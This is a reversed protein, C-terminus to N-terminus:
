NILHIRHTGYYYITLNGCIKTTVPSGIKKQLTRFLSAGEPDKNKIVVFDFDGLFWKKNAIWTFSKLDSTVQVIELNEKSLFMMRRAQWYLAIGRKANWSHASKDLCKASEPYYDEYLPSIKFGPMMVNIILLGCGVTLLGGLIWKKNIFKNWFDPWLLELLIPSFLLPAFFFPLLYRSEEIDILRYTSFALPFLTEALGVVLITSLIFASSEKEGPDKKLFCKVLVWGWGIYSLLLSTGIVAHQNMFNYFIQWIVQSNEWFYALAIGSGFVHPIFRYISLGIITSFLIALFILGIKKGEFRFKTWLLPLALEAPIIWHPIILKDSLTALIILVCLGFLIYPDKNKLISDSLLNLLLFTALMWSIFGGFHTVSLLAINFPYINKQVLYIFIVYFFSSSFFAQSQSRVFLRVILFVLLWSILIQLSFNIPFAQYVNGVLENSFMFLFWDPFIFTAASFYWTSFSFKSQILDRYLSPLFLEDSNYFHYMDMHHSFYMLLLSALAIIPILIASIVILIKKM